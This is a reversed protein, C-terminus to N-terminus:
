TPSTVSRKRLSFLQKSVVNTPLGSYVIWRGGMRYKALAVISRSVIGGDSLRGSTIANKSFRPSRGTFRTASVSLVTM